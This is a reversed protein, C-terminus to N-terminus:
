QNRYDWPAVPSSEAWLGRLNLQAEAEARQYLRSSSRYHWAHGSEILLLSIDRDAHWVKAVVRGYRDVDMPKYTVAHGELPKLAATAERGFSQGVEPADVGYLRVTTSGIVLTDGDTVKTVTGAKPQNALFGLTLAIALLLIATKM